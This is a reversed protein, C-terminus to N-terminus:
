GEPPKDGILISDGLSPGLELAEDTGSAVILGV